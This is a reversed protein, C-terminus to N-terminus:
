NKKTSWEPEIVRTATCFYLVDGKAIVTRIATENEFRSVTGDKALSFATNGSLLIMRDEFFTIQEVAQPFTQELVTKGDADLVCLQYISTDTAEKYLFAIRSNQPSVNYEIVKKGSIDYEDYLKGSQNYFKVGQDCVLVFSDDSIWAAELPMAGEVTLLLSPKDSDISLIMLETCIGTDGVYYSSILLTKGDDALDVSAIYKNKQIKNMLQFSSSYVEVVGFYEKSRSAIVYVGEDSLDADAIPYGTTSTHVQSFGTYLSYAGGTRDFALLYKESAALAPSDYHLNGTYSTRGSADYIAIQRDSLQALSDKYIAFTNLPNSDYSISGAEGLETRLEFNVNRMLYRFNEITIEEKFLNLMGLLFVVLLIVVGYRLYRYVSAKKLYRENYIVPGLAEEPSVFRESQYSEEQKQLAKERKQEQLATQEKKKQPTKGRFLRKVRVNKAPKEVKSPQNSTKKKQPQKQEAM